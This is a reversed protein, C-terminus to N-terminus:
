QKKGSEGPLNMYGSAAGLGTDFQSSRSDLGPDLRSIDLDVDIMREPSQRSAEVPQPHAVGGGAATEGDLPLLVDVSAFRADHEALDRAVAYLFLLERYAPLDFTSSGPDRRLLSAELAQMTQEPTAWLSELRALVKPYDLLSRGQQLDAQWDQAYSNFRRNFRERIREYADRDNRRRHIELLKLYALPNASGSGRLHGMLLDIAADDQGLVVFFEAQQELDILEEVSMEGARGGGSPPLTDPGSRALGQVQSLMMPSATTEVLPPEDSASLQQKAGGDREPTGRKTAADTAAESKPAAVATPPAWWQAAARREVGRRWLLVGVAVALAASLAALALVLMNADRKEEAEHLRLKLQALSAQTAQSDARMKTLDAELAQMRERDRARLEAQEDPASAARAPAPPADASAQPLSGTLRLNVRERSGADEVPVLKLHAGAPEAPAQVVKPAPAARGPRDSEALDPAAERPVAAVAPKTRRPRPAATAGERKPSPGAAAAVTVASREGRRQPPPAASGGDPEVGALALSITPPDAFVVFKRALRNPCTIQVIVTVVPEDIASNSRVRLNRSSPGAGAEIAVRVASSPLQNDGSFVTATVCEAVLAEDTDLNVGVVFGLPQGLVTVDGVRGFGVAMAESVALWLLAALALPFTLRPMRKPYNSRSSELM